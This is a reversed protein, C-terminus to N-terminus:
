NDSEGGLMRLRAIRRDEEAMAQARRFLDYLYDIGFTNIAVALEKFNKIFLEFLKRYEAELLEPRRDTLEKFKPSMTAHCRYVADLDIRWFPESLEVHDVKYLGKSMHYFMDKLKDVTSM